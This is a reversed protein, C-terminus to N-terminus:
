WPLCNCPVNLTSQFDHVDYVEASIYMHKVMRHWNTGRDIALIVTCAQLTLNPRSKATFLWFQRLVTDNQELIM